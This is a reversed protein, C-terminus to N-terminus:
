EVTTTEAEAALFERLLTLARDADAAPVAISVVGPQTIPAPLAHDMRDHLVADIGQPRLVVDRLRRADHPSDTRYIEVFEDARREM